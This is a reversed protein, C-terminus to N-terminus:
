SCDEDSAQRGGIELLFRRHSDVENACTGAVGFQNGDLALPQYATARHDDIGAGQHGSRHQFSVAGFLHDVARLQVQLLDDFQDLDGVGLALVHSTHVGAIRAQIAGDALLNAMQTLQINRKFDNWADRCRGGARRQQARLQGQRVHGLAHDQRAVGVLGRHGSTFLQCAQRLMPRGHRNMQPDLVQRLDNLFEQGMVAGIARNRHNVARGPRILIPHYPRKLVNGGLNVGFPKPTRRQNQHTPHQATLLEALRRQISGPMRM